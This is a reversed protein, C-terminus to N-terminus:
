KANKLAKTLNQAIKYVTDSVRAGRSLVLVDSKLIEDIIQESNNSTVSSVHAFTTNTFEKQIFPFVAERLSDGLLVISKGNENTSVSREIDSSSFNGVGSQSSIQIDPRYEFTYDIDYKPNFERQEAKSLMRTLDMQYPDVSVPTYKVTRIDTTEMGLAKLIAQAGIFGGAHNWHTDLRYHTQFYNKTASLEAEPYITVFGTKNTENIYNTMTETRGVKTVIEYTPMYEGYVDCRAPWFAVVLTIGRKQCEANLEDLAGVMLDMTEEDYINTGMYHKEMDNGTYFLWDYRGYIVRGDNNYKPARFTTDILKPVFNERYTLGCTKCEYLDYGCDLYSTEVTKLHKPDHDLRPINREIEKNCVSCKQYSTGNKSCTAAIASIEVYSHGPARIFVRRQAGCKSCNEITSGHETCTAETETTAEGFSHNCDPDGGIIESDPLPTYPEEEEEEETSPGFLDDIDPAITDQVQQQGSSGYLLEDLAPGITNKYPREIATILEGHLSVLRGRFPAYDNYLAEINATLDNLKFPEVTGDENTKGKIIDAFSKARRNESEIPIIIEKQVYDEGGIIIMGGWVVTPVILIAAFIIIVILGYIKKTM